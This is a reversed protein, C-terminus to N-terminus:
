AHLPLEVTVETPGGSPSTIALSGDVTRVRQALGPLGSGAGPGTDLRAGGRGDDSVRLRLVGDQEAAEISAHRGGSHKIVNALLEAACFYAITEIAATPREPLDVSVRVPVASRAALTALADALGTDLVPPHIGRALDRLEAIAETATQHASAVLERAHAVEVPQGDDGDGLKESAMGLSMALAVLRAQTGDHLDRELRRLMAAADDVALARTEELDRVREALAGPGLLGRVLRRDAAVVLRILWPALLVTAAGVAFAAFTGAFTAVHFSGMPLLTIVLAPRLHTGPPHHRFGEWWLLYTMNVLGSGWLAVSYLGLIAVPLKVVVYAVARWSAGDRLRAGLRGVLGRGARRRAPAAVQEGLLAAALRRHLAGLGRVAALAGILVLLGLTTGVLTLSLGTGLVLLAVTVVFGAVGLPVGVLCYALETWARRTFPAEVVAHAVMAVAAAGGGPRSRPPPPTVTVPASSAM